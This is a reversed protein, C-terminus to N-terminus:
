DLLEGTYQERHYENANNDTIYIYYREKFTEVIYDKNNTLCKEFHERIRGVMANLDNGQRTDPCVRFLFDREETEVLLHAVEHNNNDLEIHNNIDISLTRGSFEIDGYTSKLIFQSM